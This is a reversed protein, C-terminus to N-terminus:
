VALSVTDFKLHSTSLTKMIEEYVATIEKGEHLNSDLDETTASDWQFLLTISLVAHM